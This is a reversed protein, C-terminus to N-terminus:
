GGDSEEEDEDRAEESSEGSGNEEDELAAELAKLREEVDLAVIPGLARDLVIKAAQIDGNYALEILKITIRYVAEPTVADLLAFRLKQVRSAAPNGNALKNGVVFRGRKDKGNVADAPLPAPHKIYGPTEADYERPDVGDPIYSLDPAKQKEVKRKKVGKKSRGGAGSERGVQKVKAWKEKVKPKPKKEPKKVM